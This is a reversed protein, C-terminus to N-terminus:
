GALDLHRLGQVTEDDLQGLELVLLPQDVPSRCSPPEGELSMGGTNTELLVRVSCIAPSIATQTGCFRQIIRTAAFHPTNKNLSVFVRLEEDQM